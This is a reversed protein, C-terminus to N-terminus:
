FGEQVAGFAFAGLLGHAQTTPHIVDMFLTGGFRTSDPVGDPELPCIGTVFPPNPPDQVICPVTLNAFLFDLGTFADNVDLVLIQVRLRRALKAMVVALRKNHAKTLQNLEQQLGLELAFPTDGLDPLNPVLFSRGGLAALQRVARRLNRVITAPDSEPEFIYDNAGGWVIVLDQPRLKGGADDFSAVQGLIGTGAVGPDFVANANRTDTFAGGVAQNNTLPNLVVNDDFDVNIALFGALAQVWLPGNSFRGEFYPPTTAPLLGNTLAFLNGTDSLSDGFIFLDKFPPGKGKEALAAPGSLGVALVVVFALCGARSIAM